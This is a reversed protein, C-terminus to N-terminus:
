LKIAKWSGLKFKAIMAIALAVIYVVAALWIGTQGWGLTVGLLWALPVLCLFHLILEVVMVFKTAGAGFLAQTLIMATAILPTCVGMIILPTLAASRVAESAAVFGLIQRSFVVEAVGVAGFIILGLKVSTWGFHEAKAPQKEGLSQSVLTATATGFALCATFTLKLIGVINTVAASNIPEGTAIAVPDLKDLQSAIMAFLLFGTMIAITAIAGPVSVKLLSWLLGLSLKKLEFPRYLTRYKPHLAYGVM